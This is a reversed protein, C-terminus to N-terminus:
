FSRIFRAPVGAVMSHSPVDRTVVAGAAVVSGEGVTVGQLLIAGAGIYAGAGITVPSTIAPYKSSLPSQGVDIHTLIMTRMSITARESITIRDALDLFVGKGVHVGPEVTLGSFGSRAHHIVLGSEIDCDESLNAGFRKLVLAVYHRRPLCCRVFWTVGDLKWIQYLLSALVAIALRAVRTSFAM